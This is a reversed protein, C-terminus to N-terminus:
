WLDLESIWAGLHNTKQVFAGTEERLAEATEARRAEAAVTADATLREIEDLQTRLVTELATGEARRM